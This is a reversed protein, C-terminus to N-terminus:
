KESLLTTKYYGAQTITCHTYNHQKTKNRLSELNHYGEWFMKLFNNLQTYELTYKQIM